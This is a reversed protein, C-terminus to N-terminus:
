LVRKLDALDEQKGVLFLVDGPVAPTDPAPHFLFSGDEKRMGLLVCQHEQLPYEALSKGKAPSSPSLRIEQLLYRNRHDPSMEFFITADPNQVLMAIRLGGDVHPLQVRNAGARRLKDGRSEDEARSVIYLAPNMQRASLVVYMNEVDKSLTAVLSKARKVGARELNADSTADELLFMFGAQALQDRKAPDSELVVVENGMGALDRAVVSGVRGYGCVICHGSLGALMKDVRRRRINRFIQGDAVTQSFYGIILAFSGIGAVIVAMTFWRGAPSLPHVEEYGITSLTILVMYVSDTLTWGEFHWYGFTGAAFVFGLCGLSIFVPWGLGMRQRLRALRTYVTRM